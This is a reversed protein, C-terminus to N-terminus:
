NPLDDINPRELKGTFDLHFMCILGLGLIFLIVAFIPHMMFGSTTLIGLFPLIFFYQIM